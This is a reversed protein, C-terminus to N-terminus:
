QSMRWAMLIDVDVIIYEPYGHGPLVQRFANRVVGTTSLFKEDTKEIMNPYYQADMHNFLSLWWEDLQKYISTSSSIIDGNKM